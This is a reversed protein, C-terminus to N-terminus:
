GGLGPHSGQGTAPDACGPAFQGRYIVLVTAPRDYEPWVDIVLTALRPASQALASPLPACPLALLAFSAMVVLLIVRRVLM